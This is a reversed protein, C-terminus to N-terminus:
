KRGKKQKQEYAIDRLISSVVSATIGCALWALAIDFFSVETFMWVLMSAKIGLLTLAAIICATNSM